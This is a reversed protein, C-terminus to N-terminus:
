SLARILDQAAQLVAPMDSYTHVASEAVQLAGAASARQANAPVGGVMAALARLGAEQVGDVAEHQRIAAVSAELAGSAVVPGRRQPDRCLKALALLAEEAVGPSAPCCEMANLVADIGGAAVVRADGQQGSAFAALCGCAHQVAAAGRGRGSATRASAGRAASVVLPLADVAVASAEAAPHAVLCGLACLAHAQVREHGSHSRLADVVCTVCAGGDRAAAELAAPHTVCTALAGLAEELVAPSAAHAQASALVAALAAVAHEGTAGPAAALIGLTACGQQQLTTSSRGAALAAALAEVGEARLAAAANDADVACVGLAGACQALVGTTADGLSAAAAHTRVAAVLADVAGARGVLAQNAPSVALVGLASAGQAQVSLVAVHARMAAVIAPVAGAHAVKATNEASVALSSLVACGAAAVAADRVHVQLAATALEHARAAVARAKNAAHNSTLSTLANCVAVVVEPSPGHARLAAAACTVADAEAARRKADADSLLYPLLAFTAQSCGPLAHGVRLAACVHELAGASCARGRLGPAASLLLALAACIPGAADPATAHTALVPCLAELAAGAVEAADSGPRLRAALAAAAHQVVAVDSPYAHLAGLAAGVTGTTHLQHVGCLTTLADCVQAEIPAPIGPVAIASLLVCAAHRAQPGGQPMPVAAGCAALCGAAHQLVDVAGPQAQIVALLADMAAPQSGVQHPPLSCLALAAAAAVAQSRQHRLMAAALAAIAAAFGTDHAPLVSLAAALSRCLQEAEGADPAGQERVLAALVSQVDGGAGPVAPRRVPPSAAHPATVPAAATAFQASVSAAQPAREPSGVAASPTPSSLAAEQPQYPAAEASAAGGLAALAAMVREVVRGDSACAAQARVLAQAASAALCASRGQPQKALCALADAAHEAVSVVAPHHRLSAVLAAPAGAQVLSLVSRDGIAVAKVARAALSAAAPDHSADRLVAVSAPIAGAAGARAWCETNIGMSHLCALAGRAVQMDGPHAQLVAVAAEIGGAAGGRAKAELSAATVVALAMSLLAGTDAASGGHTVLAAVLAEAAAPAGSVPGAGAAADPKFLTLLAQAAESVVSVHAPHGNLAAVATDVAGAACCARGVQRPDCAALAALLSCAHEVVAAVQAHTAAAKVAADPLAPPLAHILAASRTAGACVAQLAQLASSCCQVQASHAALAQSVADLSGAAVCADALAPSARALATIATGASVVLGMSSGGGRLAVCVLAPASVAHAAAASAPSARGTTGGLLSAAAYLGAELVPAEGGHARLARDLGAWSAAVDGAAAPTTALTACAQACAGPHAVYVRLVTLAAGHLDSSSGPSPVPVGDASALAAIALCALQALHSDAPFARSAALVRQAADAAHGACATRACAALRALAVCGRRQVLYSSAGLPTAMCGLCAEVVASAEAAALSGSALAAAAGLAAEATREDNMGAGALAASLAPLAGAQLAQQRRPATDSLVPLALACRSAARAVAAHRKLAACLSPLAGAALAADTPAGGDRLTSQLAWAAARACDADRPHASLAAVLPPLVESALLQARTPGHAALNGLAECAHRGAEGSSPGHVRLAVVLCRPAGAEHLPPANDPCLALQAICTAAAAQLDPVGPHTKMLGVLVAPAGAGCGTARLADDFMLSALARCCAAAVPPNSDAHHALCALLVRVGPGAPIGSPAMTSAGDQALADLARAAALAVASHQVGHLRLAILAADYAGVAIAKGQLHSSGGALRELATCGQQQVAVDRRHAVCAAVVANVAGAYVMRSRADVDVSGALAALLVCGAVAALAHDRLALMCDLVLGCVSDVLVRAVSSPPRVTVAAALGSAPAEGPMAPLGLQRPLDKMAAVMKMVAARAAPPVAVVPGMASGLGKPAQLAREIAGAAAVVSSARWAQELEEAIQPSSGLCNQAPDDFDAERDHSVGGGGHAAVQSQPPADVERMLAERRTIAAEAQAEAALNAFRTPPGAVEQEAPGSDGGSAPEEEEVSVLRQREALRAADTNPATFLERAREDLAVVAAAEAAARLRQVEAEHKATMGVLAASLRTAEVEAAAARAQAAALLADVGSPGSGAGGGGGPSPRAVSQLEQRLRDAVAQSEAVQRSAAALAGKAAAGEDRAAQLQARLSQAEREAAQLRAADSSVSSAPSPSAHLPSSQRQKLLSLETGVTQLEGRLRLVEAALAGRQKEALQLKAHADLHAASDM